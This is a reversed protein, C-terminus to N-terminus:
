GAAALTFMGFMISVTNIRRIPQVSRSRRDNREAWWKNTRSSIRLLHVGVDYGLMSMYQDINIYQDIYQDEKAIPQVSRCGVIFSTDKKQGTGVYIKKSIVLAAM